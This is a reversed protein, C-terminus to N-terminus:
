HPLPLSVGPCDARSWDKRYAESVSGVNPWEGYGISLSPYGDGLADCAQRYVERVSTEEPVYISFERGAAVPELQDVPGFRVMGCHAKAITQLAAITRRSAATYMAGSADEFHGAVWHVGKKPTAHGDAPPRAAVESTCLSLCALVWTFTLCRPHM